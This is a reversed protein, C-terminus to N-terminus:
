PDVAVSDYYESAVPPTASGTSGLPYSNAQVNTVAHSPNLYSLNGAWLTDQPGNLAIASYYSNQAGSGYTFTSTPSGTWPTAYVALTNVNGPANVVLNQKRDVAIGEALQGALSQLVTDAGTRVNVSVVIPRGNADYGDALLAKGATAMYYVENLHTTFLTRAPPGGGAAIESASFVDIVDDGANGAYLNGRGDYTLGIAYPGQSLTLTAFQTISRGKVHWVTVTASRAGVALDRTKPEVALGVGSCACEAVMRLTSEAYVDVNGAEGNAAFILEAGGRTDNRPDSTSVFAAKGSHMRAPDAVVTLPAPAGPEPIAASGQCAALALPLV